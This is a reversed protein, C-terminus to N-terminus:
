SGEPKEPVVVFVSPEDGDGGGCRRAAAAVRRTRFRLRLGLAVVPDPQPPQGAALHAPLVVGAPRRRRRRREERREDRARPGGERDQQQEEERRGRGGGGGGRRRRGPPEATDGEGEGGGPRRRSPPPGAARRARHVDLVPARRHRQHLPPGEPGDGLSNLAAVGGRALPDQPRDGLHERRADQEPVPRGRQHAPEARGLDRRPLADRAGGPAPVRLPVHLDRGAHRPRFLHLRLRGHLRAHDRVPDGGAAVGDLNRPLRRPRVRRDMGPHLGRPGGPLVRRSGAPRHLPEAPQDPVACLRADGRQEAGPRSRHDAECQLAQLALRLLSVRHEADPVRRLGAHGAPLLGDRVAGEAHDADRSHGRGGHLRVDRGPRDM